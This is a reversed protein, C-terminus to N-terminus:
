KREFALMTLDDFQPADGVFADVDARVAVLIEKPTAKCNKELVAKLRDMGYLENEANTAEPVGDTYLFLKDGPALNFRDLLFQLDEMTALPPRKKTPKFGEVSGDTHIVLPLEHGADAFEVDGTKLDIVAAWTTVFYGEDNGECLQNNANILAENVPEKNQLHNKILTKAIVMFLAAPVGKGSVDAMVVALHDDDVMFLDYFDGGVEKAPDMSAFIDMDNREPFAPFISPLMDAQIKTAVNLEAGIREKEATIATINDVYALMDKEMKDISEALLEVEDNTKISTLTKESEESRENAEGFRKVEDAIINIPKVVRKYLYIVFFIIILIIAVILLCVTRTVFDRAATQVRRMPEEVAIVCIVESGDKSLVPKLASINYGFEGDSIIFKSQTTKTEIVEAFLEINQKNMKSTDGINFNEEEKYYNDFVYLLPKLSDNGSAFQRLVTPEYWTVYIDTLDMNKRLATLETQIKQYKESNKAAEQKQKDGSKAAAVYEALEDVTVNEMITSEVTDAILYATDHYQQEMSIVFGSYSFGVAMTCLIVGVIVFSLIFKSALSRKNNM